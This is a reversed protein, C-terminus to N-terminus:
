DLVYAEVVHNCYSCEWDAGNSLPMNLDENKTSKGCHPCFKIGNNKVTKVVKQRNDMTVIVDCIIQELHNRLLDLNTDEDIAFKRLSEIVSEVHDKYLM